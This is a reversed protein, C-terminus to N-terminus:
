KATGMEILTDFLEDIRRRMVEAKRTEDEGCGYLRDMRMDYGRERNRGAYEDYVQEPVLDSIAADVMYDVHKEVVQDIWLYDRDLKLNELQSETVWEPEEAQRRLESLAYEEYQRCIDEELFYSIEMECYDITDDPDMIEEAGSLKSRYEWDEYDGQMFEDLDMMEEYASAIWAEFAMARFVEEDCCGGGERIRRWLASLVPGLVAKSSGAQDIFAKMFAKDALLKDMNYFEALPSDLLPLLYEASTKMDYISYLSAEGQRLIEIIDDRYRVERLKEKVVCNWLLINGRCGKDLFRYRLVSGDRVMQETITKLERNDSKYRQYLLERIQDFYVACEIIRKKELPNSAIYDRLFDNVSPNLVEVYRKDSLIENVMSKKLHRLVKQMPNVTKDIYPEMNIRAFFCEELIGYEVKGKSLSYLTTLFIRDEPLMRNEFEERWIEDPHNLMALLKNYFEAPGPYNTSILFISEMIRPNFNRHEIVTFYRKGESIYKLLDERGDSYKVLYSYFMRAKEYETLQDMSIHVVENLLRKLEVFKSLAEQYISVRSNLIVCKNEHNRIYSLLFELERARGMDMTYYIQGLFDDLLVLEKSDDMHVANKLEKVNGDSTYIIRYGRKSYDLAAMASTVTKGSGPQGQLLVMGDRDLCELCKRYGETPVLERYSLTRRLMEQSDLIIHKHLADGLIDMSFNWLGPYKHLVDRNEPRQLFDDIRSLTFIHSEELVVCGSFMDTIQKIREETLDKSLFLYYETAGLGGAKTVEQRLAAMLQPVSSNLYHKVQAAAQPHIMRDRIDAGRDNASDTVMMQIGTIKQLIDRSLSVFDPASLNYFNLM